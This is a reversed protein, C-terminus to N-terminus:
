LRGRNKITKLSAGLFATTSDSSRLTVLSDGTRASLLFGEGGTREYNIAVLESGAEELTTPLRGSQRAFEFVRDRERLLTLRLSAAAVAVPEAPPADPGALWTPRILLVILGAVGIVGLVSVRRRRGTGALRAMQQESAHEGREKVAALAADYLNTKTDRPPTPRGGTL